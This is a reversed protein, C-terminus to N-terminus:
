VAKLCNPSVRWKGEPTDITCTKKNVRKITGRVEDGQRTNFCVEQGRTFVNTPVRRVPATVKGTSGAWVLRGGCNRCSLTYRGEQIRNHRISTLEHKTTCNCKYTFRKLRRGTNSVDMNHCRTAEKGLVGMVMKWEKGHPAVKRVRRGGKWVREGGFLHRVIMHAVEHPTTEELMEKRNEDLLVQNIRITHSETITNYIHYGAVKGTLDLTVHPQTINKLEPFVKVATNMCGVIVKKVTDLDTM